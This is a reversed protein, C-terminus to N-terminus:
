GVGSWEGCAAVCRVEFPLGVKSALRDVTLSGEPLALGMDRAAGPAAPVLVPRFGGSQQLWDPTLQAPAVRRLNAPRYGGYNLLEAHLVRFDTGLADALSCLGFLCTPLLCRLRCGASERISPEFAVLRPWAHHGPSARTCGDICGKEGVGLSLDSVDGAALRRYDVAPRGGIRGMLAPAPSAQGKPEAKGGAGNSTGKLPVVSCCHAHSRRFHGQPLTTARVCM